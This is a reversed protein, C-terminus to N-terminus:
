CPAARAHPVFDSLNALFVCLRKRPFMFCVAATLVWWWSCLPLPFLSVTFCLAHAGDLICCPGTCHMGCGGRMCGPLPLLLGTPIARVVGDLLVGGFACARLRLLLPFLACMVHFCGAWGRNGMHSPPLPPCGGHELIAARGLPGRYRGVCSTNPPARVPACFSARSACRDLM